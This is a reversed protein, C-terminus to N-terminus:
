GDADSPAPEEFVVTRPFGPTNAYYGLAHTGTASTAFWWTKRDIPDDDTGLISTFIGKNTTTSSSPLALWDASDEDYVVYRHDVWGSTVKQTLVDMARQSPHRHKSEFGASAAVVQPKTYSEIFDSAIGLKPKKSNYNDALTRLAGHHPASMMKCPLVPNPLPATTWKHLVTMAAGLTESTGDGPLIFNTGGFAIVIAASSTNRELDVASRRSSVNSVLVLFNVGKISAMPTKTGAVAYGSTSGIPVPKVKFHTAFSGVAKTADGGWSNGGFALSGLTTGSQESQIRGLLAPLLSWHDYDQHSVILMEIRPTISDDVMRKLSSMVFDVGDDAHSDNPTDSGLDILALATLKETGFFTEYIRVLTGMGQAVHLVCVEIRSASM